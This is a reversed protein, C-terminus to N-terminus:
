MSMAAEAGSAMSEQLSDIMRSIVGDVDVDSSINQSIGGVDISVRATTYKNIQEQTAYDKMDKIEEEMLDLSDAMRGTNDATRGTNGKLAKGTGGDGAADAGDKGYKSLDVGSGGGFDPMKIGSFWDSAGWEYAQQANYTADGMEFEATPTFGEIPKIDAKISAGTVHEFTAVKDMGPVANVLDIVSNVAAAVLDVIGSWISAFLNYTAALPNNFVSRLFNAFAIFRNLTFKILNVIHTFLWAFIAAVVGAASISTGAFYNVVEIAAWFAVALLIVLGIIWTIPCAYLAANLGEQAFTLALIAATEIASSVAHAIAGAAALGYSILAQAGFIALVGGAVLLATKIVESYQSLTNFMWKVNNVVGRIVYLVENAIIPMAASIMTVFQKFADSNFLDNIEKFVPAFANTTVTAIDQMADAFTNPMAQFQREIEDSNSLIANKLVEATILGKSSLEKLMGQSVGLYKAVMQEIMPAAEAISRFEDGQLKGSGLAQTLQLLADQQHSKDTGGIVFLKQIGEMFPVVERPDPFAERATMGIKTVADAMAEFSGHSRLASQYIANNMEAVKEQSGVLLGLRAQISGYGAAMGVLQGPLAAVADVAQIAYNALMNGLGVGTIMGTMDKLRDIVRGLGSGASNIERLAPPISSRIRSATNEAVDGLRRLSSAVGDAKTAGVEAMRVAIARIPATVGSASLRINTLGTAVRRVFRTFGVDGIIRDSVSSIARGLVSMHSATNSVATRVGALGASIRQAFRSFGVDGIIRDSVFSVARGLASMQSATNSAANGVTAIQNATTSISGLALMQSATNSAVNVANAIQNSATSIGGMARTATQANQTIARLPGSVGDVLRIYNTLTAM